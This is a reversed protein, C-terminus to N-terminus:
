AAASRLRRLYERSFAGLVSLCFAAFTSLMVLRARRPKAKKDPPVAYDLVQVTSSDKAEQIRAMEYQQTLLEFVTEQIKAERLLTLYQLSIGAIEDTPIFVDRGAGGRELERLKDRLGRVEARLIEVNPNTPAAYSELTSLAVEKAVIQGKVTGIAEIIAKAQSDIDVAKNKEQFRRIDEEVAELKKRTDNMQGEVFTRMRRGSSMSTGRNIRDLEEVFANAMSAAREPSEDLVSISIIEEISKDIRVKAALAERTDEITDTAYLAKLDFRKIVADSVNQSRLIGVWVDAPSKLGLFSSSLGAISPIKSLGAAASLLNEEQPPLVSATAKFQKPIVLSVIVAVIFASITVAAIMKRSESLVRWHKLLSADIPTHQRPQNDM